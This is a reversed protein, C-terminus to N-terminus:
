EDWIEANAATIEGACNRENQCFFVRDLSQKDLLLINEINQLLTVPM